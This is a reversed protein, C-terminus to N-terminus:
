VPQVAKFMTDPIPVYRRKPIEIPPQYFGYFVKIIKDIKRIFEYKSNGTFEIHGVVGCEYSTFRDDIFGLQRITPNDIIEFRRGLYIELDKNRLTYGWIPFNCEFDMEFPLTLNVGVRRHKRCLSADFTICERSFAEILGSIDDKWIYGELSEKPYPTSVSHTMNIEEKMREEM